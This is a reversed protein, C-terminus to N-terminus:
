SGVRQKTEDDWIFEAVPLHKSCTVCYTAGYFAPQRAYTEALELSMKTAAGCGNDVADLQAQTWFRGLAMSDGRGEDYPEYKVYDNGGWRDEEEETLDRIEGGPGPPGVHIYWRRVPRMFGEAREAESLVLYAGHQATTETDVGWGLRPDTRDTVLDSM